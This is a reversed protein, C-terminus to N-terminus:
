QTQQRLDLGRDGERPQFDSSARGPDATTEPALGSRAHQLQLHSREARDIFYDNSWPGYQNGDYEDDMYYRGYGKGKGSFQWPRRYFGRSWGFKGKGKGKGKRFKGKSKGKGKDKGKGFSSSSM